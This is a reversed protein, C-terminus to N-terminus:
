EGISPAGGFIYDFATAVGGKVTTPLGAFMGPYYRVRLLDTNSRFFIFGNPDVGTGVLM